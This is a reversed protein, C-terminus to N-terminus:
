VGMLIRFVPVITASMYKGLIDFDSGSPILVLILFVFMGPGHCFAYWRNRMAPLMFTGILWHGDLPGFPIMNFFFMALNVIILTFLYLYAGDYFNSVYHITKNEAFALSMGNDFFGAALRLIVAGVIAIGLNSIPGMIVSIFHDWKPNKMRSINVMVPKGWGIGVGAASSLVMMITGMPDLHALPNLTVRGQSRPTMDGAMDAFKAHCYEHLGVSPIFVALMLLINMPDFNM